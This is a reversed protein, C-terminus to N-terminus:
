GCRATASTSARDRPRGPRHRARRGPRGPARLVQPRLRRDRRAAAAPGEDDAGRRDRVVGAADPAHGRRHRRRDDPEGAGPRGGRLGAVRSADAALAHRRLQQHDAGGDAEPVRGLLAHLAAGGEEGRGDGQGRLAHLGPRRGGAPAGLGARQRLAGVAVAGPPPGLQRGRPRVPAGEPLRARRGPEGPRGGEVEELPRLDLDGRHHGQTGPGLYEDFTGVTGGFTERFEGLAPDDPMVALRSGYFPIGVSQALSGVIATAAPHAASTQDIAVARLESEQWEKPLVREPHKELKRFTYGRGDAGKMALGETQFGGVQRLPTLGGAETKLDLVPSSSRRRGPRATATASGSAGTDAGTSSRARSSRGPRRSRRAPPRGAAGGPRVLFRGARRGRAGGCVVVRVLRMVDEKRRRRSVGGGRDGAGTAGAGHAAPARPRRAGRRRHGGAVFIMNLRAFGPVGRHVIHTGLFVVGAALMDGARVFFTDIAQKAKYKEERSTPLWIMQKATNMVSYDTSNEAVKVYLLVGLAAGASASGYACFAVLPLAFLAGRLGFRKVLRSVVFAQLAIAALNTLLFYRGYFTGIFAERDFAADLAQQADASAVVAQALIFEGVTNVINLVVLLLAVLRLYPSKLVLAFGNGAKM